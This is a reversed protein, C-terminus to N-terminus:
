QHTKTIVILREMKPRKISCIAEGEESKRDKTGSIGEDYYLGAYEWSFKKANISAKIM